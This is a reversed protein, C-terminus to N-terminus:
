SRFTKILSGFQKIIPAVQHYTNALQGVTNLMKDVDIQGENNQFQNLLNNMQKPPPENFSQVQPQNYSTFDGMHPQQYQHMNQNSSAGVADSMPYGYDSQGYEPYPNGYSPESHIHHNQHMQNQQMYNPQPQPQSMGHRPVSEYWNEPQKPKAFQTFATHFQELGGVHNLTNHHQRNVNYNLSQQHFPAPNFFPRKHMFFVGEKM